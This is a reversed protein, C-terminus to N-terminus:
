IIIFAGTADTVQGHLPMVFGLTEDVLSVVRIDALAVRVEEVTCFQRLIFKSM